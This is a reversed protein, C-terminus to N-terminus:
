RDSVNLTGNAGRRSRKPRASPSTKALPQYLSKRKRARSSAMGVSEDGNKNVSDDGANLHIEVDPRSGVENLGGEVVNSDVGDDEADHNDDVDDHNQKFFEKSAPTRMAKRTKMSALQTAEKCPRADGHEKYFAAAWRKIEANSITTSKDLPKQLKKERAVDAFLSWLKWWRESWPKLEKAWLACEMEKTMGRGYKLEYRGAAAMNSPPPPYHVCFQFRISAM